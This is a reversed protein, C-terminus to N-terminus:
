GSLELRADEAHALGAEAEYGAADAALQRKGPYPITQNFTLQIQTMPEQHLSFNDVPLNMANLELVPDPLTRTQPPVAQLASIAGRWDLAIAQAPACSM